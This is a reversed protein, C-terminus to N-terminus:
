PSAFEGATQGIERVVRFGLANSEKSVTEWGRAESKLSEPESTWAGGRVIRHSCPADAAEDSFGNERCGDVWEWVNGVVGTVGDARVTLESVPETASIGTKEVSKAPGNSAMSALEDWEAETPLRYHAKTKSSLWPLYESIIMNYSVNIVPHDGGGWGNDSPRTKCGGDDVCAEWEAFTVEHLGVAPRGSGNFLESMEPCNECERFAGASSSNERTPMSGQAALPSTSPLLAMASTEVVKREAVPKPLPAESLQVQQEPATKAATITVESVAAQADKGIVSATVIAAPQVEPPVPKTVPPAQKELATLSNPDPQVAETAAWKRFPNEESAPNTLVTFGKSIAGSVSGKGFYDYVVLFVGILIATQVAILGYPPKRRRAIRTNRIPASRSEKQKPARAAPGAQHKERQAFEDVVIKFRELYDDSRSM